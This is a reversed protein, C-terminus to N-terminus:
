GNSTPRIIDRPPLEPPPSSNPPPPPHPPPHPSHPLNHRLSTGTSMLPPPPYSSPPVGVGDMSLYSDELSPNYNSYSSANSYPQSPPRPTTGKKLHYPKPNPPPKETIFLILIDFLLVTIVSYHVIIVNVITASVCQYM